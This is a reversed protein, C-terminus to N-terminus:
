RHRAPRHRRGRGAHRQRPQLNAPLWAAVDDARLRRLDRAQMVRGYPHEGYLAQWFARGAKKAPAEHDPARSRGLEDMVKTWRIRDLVLLRVALMALANSVNRRGTVVMDATMDEDDVKQIAMANQRLEFTGERELQRLLQIIGAPSAGAGGGFGLAATVSPFQPRRVLLVRM